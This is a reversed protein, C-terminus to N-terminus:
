GTFRPSRRQAARACPSSSRVLQTLGDGYTFSTRFPLRRNRPCTRPTTVLNRGGRSRASINLEARRLATQGDPPGGPLPPVESRLTRGQLRFRAPVRLGGGRLTALLIPGQANNFIVVDFVLPDIPPGFGTLFELLGSGIRSGAPCAGAGEAVLQPDSANCVPAASTDFRTGAPFTTVVSRVAPPKANPDSPNRYFVRTRTGASANTRRTTFELDFDARPGPGVSSGPDGGPPPFAPLQASASAAGMLAAVITVFAVFGARM